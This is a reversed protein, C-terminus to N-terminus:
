RLKFDSALVSYCYLGWAIFITPLVLRFFFYYIFIFCVLARSLCLAIKKNKNKKQWSVPQFQLSFRVSFSRCVDAMIYLWSYKLLTSPIECSKNQRAAPVNTSYYVQHRLHSSFPSSSHKFTFETATLNLYLEPGIVLGMLQFLMTIVTEARIITDIRLNIRLFCDNRELIM